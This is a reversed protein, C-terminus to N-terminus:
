AGAREDFTVSMSIYGDVIQTFHMVEAKPFSNLSYYQYDNENLLIQNGQSGDYQRYQEPFKGGTLIASPYRQRMEAEYQAANAAGSGIGQGNFSTNCSTSRRNGVVVITMTHFFYDEAINIKYMRGDQSTVVGFTGAPWTTALSDAFTQPDTM